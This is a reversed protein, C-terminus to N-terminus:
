KIYNIFHNSKMENLCSFNVAPIFRWFRFSNRLKSSIEGWLLVRFVIFNWNWQESNMFSNLKNLLLLKLSTLNLQRKHNLVQLNLTQHLNKRLFRNVKCSFDMTKCGPILRKDRQTQATLCQIVEWRRFALKSKWYRLRQKTWISM